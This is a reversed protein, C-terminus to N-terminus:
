GLNLIHPFDEKKFRKIVDYSYTNRIAFNKDIEVYIDHECVKGKSIGLLVIGM